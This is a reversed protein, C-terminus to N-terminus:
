AAQRILEAQECAQRQRLHRLCQLVGGYGPLTTKSRGRCVRLSPKLFACLCEARHEHGDGRAYEKKRTISLRLCM